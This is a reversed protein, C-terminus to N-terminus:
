RMRKFGLLTRYRERAAFEAMSWVAPRGVEACLHLIQGEGVVVGVHAGWAEDTANFLVLDLPQAVAVRRTLRTDAWLDSSRWAAPELGFVGFLELVAYAFLQCNAGHALGPRDRVAASGPFRAGAYPTAWMDAPIRALVDAM